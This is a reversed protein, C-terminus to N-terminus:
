CGALSMCPLTNRINLLNLGTLGVIIALPLVVMVWRNRKALWDLYVSWGLTLMLGIPILSVFLYRGQHQVYRLNYTLFLALNFGLLTAFVVLQDRARIAGKLERVAWAVFGGLGALTLLLLPPYTWGPMPCCMWGFQGWFSRFSNQGFIYLADDVGGVMEVWDGTKLQGVVVEDHIMTGLFDPGPYVIMNRGWWLLGILLAPAFLRLCDRVLQSWKGWHRYLLWLGLAGAMLYATVKTLFALGLLFALQSHPIPFQSDPIQPPLTSDPRHREEKDREGKGKGRVVMFLMAAVLLGALADNNVSGLIALHQPLLAVFAPVTLALAPRNQFLTRGIGYAFVVILAGMLVSGLRLATLSGDFLLFLPTQVLYYLPPQYDEYAISDIPYQPDFRSSVVKARYSEDYDSPEMIPFAGAALQRIYNYHAPEDPAQWAPTRIAYASALGLYIAFLLLFPLHKRIM